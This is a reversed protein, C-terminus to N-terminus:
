SDSTETHIQTRSTFVSMVRVRLHEPAAEECCGRKVLRRLAEEADFADMCPECAELHSRVEDANASDLEHDLFEYLRALAKTCDESGPPAPENM